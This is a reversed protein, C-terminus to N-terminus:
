DRRALVIAGILAALLLLSVAEFALVNDRLLVVGVDATRGVDRVEVEEVGFSDRVAFWTVAFLSTAILVAPWRRSARTTDVANSPSRTLMIGFLFLVVVAGVYVLIQVTAVFEAALLVYIPALGALVIVLALAARVLDGSVVVRWASMVVVLSLLLFVLQAAVVLM